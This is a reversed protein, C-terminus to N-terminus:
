KAKPAPRGAAPRAPAPRAKPAPRARPAQRARPAPRAPAGGAAAAQVKQTSDMVRKVDARAQQVRAEARAKAKRAVVEAKYLAPSRKMTQLDKQRQALAAAERAAREERAAAEATKRRAVAAVEKEQDRKRAAREAEHQAQQAKVEAARERQAKEKAARFKITQTAQKAEPQRAKPGLVRAKKAEAVKKVVLQQGSSLSSWKGLKRALNVAHGFAEPRKVLEKNASVWDATTIKNLARRPIGSVESSQNQGFHFSVNYLGSQRSLATVQCPYTQGELRIEVPDRVKILLPKPTTVGQEIAKHKAIYADIQQQRKKALQGKSPAPTGARRVSVARARAALLLAALAALCRVVM